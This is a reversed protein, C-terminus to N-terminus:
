YKLRRLSGKEFSYEPTEFPYSVEDEYYWPDEEHKPNKLLHFEQAPMYGQGLLFAKKGDERKCVDVIMVVHGPSGGRLFIDGVRIDSLQIKKSEEEMSLTSSYAFVIRLYKVFAEYSNDPTGGQVWGSQTEGVRIRDGRRWRGYEAQFGDVFRFSIREEQKTHWFYEAYVRMVSDACQQLDENELPLKFVAVHADQNTKKRGNYLMVPEGAKKLPYERLFSALSNGDEKKREYGNPPCIRKELTNGEPRIMEATKETQVEQQEPEHDGSPAQEEEQTIDVTTEQQKVPFIGARFLILLVAVGLVLAAIVAYLKRKSRNM